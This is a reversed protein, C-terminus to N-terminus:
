FSSSSFDLIKPASGTVGNIAVPLPRPPDIAESKVIDSNSLMPEVFFRGSHMVNPEGRTPSLFNCCAM